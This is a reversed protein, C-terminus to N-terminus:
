ALLAGARRLAPLLDLLPLGLITAHDGEIRSFLQIGLGELRYAGVSALVADGEAMLYSDLFADSLPRVTLRAEAAATFPPAGDRLLCAAAHLSHTHGALRRLHDRAALPSAPKSFMETGLALVQDAGLVLRGPHRPAVARAKAAALHAAVAAPAAGAARLPAEIAREDVAAPDVLVPIGAAELLTRRTTSGSALVLPAGRWLPHTM